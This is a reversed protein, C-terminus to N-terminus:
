GNRTILQFVAAVIGGISATLTISVILKLWSIDSKLGSMDAFKEHFGDISTRMLKMDDAMSEMYLQIHALHNDKSTKVDAHIEDLRKHIQETM